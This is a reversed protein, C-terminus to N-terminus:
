WHCSCFLLPPLLAAKSIPFSENGLPRPSREHYITTPQSHHLWNEVPRLVFAGFLALVCIVAMVSLGFLIFSPIVLDLGLRYRLLRETNPQM